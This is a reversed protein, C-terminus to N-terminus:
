AQMDLVGGRYTFVIPQEIEFNVIRHRRRVVVQRVGLAGPPLLSRLPLAGAIWASGSAAVPNECGAISVM